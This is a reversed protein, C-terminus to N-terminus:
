WRGRVRWVIEKITERLWWRLNDRKEQFWWRLEDWKEQLWWRLDDRKEELWFRWDHRWGGPTWLVERARRQRAPTARAAARVNESQEEEVEKTLLNLGDAAEAGYSYAWDNGTPKQQNARGLGHPFLKAFEADVLAGKLVVLEIGRSRAQETREQKLIIFRGSIRDGMGRLTLRCGVSVGLRREIKVGMSSQTEMAPSPAASRLAAAYAGAIPTLKRRRDHITVRQRNVVQRKALAVNMLEVRKDLNYKLARAMPEYLSVPGSVPEQDTTVRSRKDGAYDSIEDVSLPTTSVACGSLGAALVFLLLKPQM